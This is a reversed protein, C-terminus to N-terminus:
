ENDKGLIPTKMNYKKRLYEYRDILEGNQDLGNQMMKELEALYHCVWRKHKLVIM